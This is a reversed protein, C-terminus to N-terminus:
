KASHKELVKLIRKRKRKKALDLPTKGNRDKANIAAGKILLLKVIGIKAKGVQERMRNIVIQIQAQQENQSDAPESNLKSDLDPSFIAWHLPTRGLADRTNIKAGFALLALIYEQPALEAAYHLCTAGLKNKKHVDAGQLLLTRLGTLKTIDPLNRKLKFIPVSQRALTMNRSAFIAYTLPTDGNIDSADIDAGQSLLLEIKSTINAITIFKSRFIYHLATRGKNDRASVSLGKALLFKMAKLGRDRTLLHLLNAGNKDKYQLDAGKALLLEITQERRSSYAAFFISSQGSKDKVGVDAGKRLLMKVTTIHGGNIAYHLPINKETDRINVSVGKALVFAVAKNYGYQSFWHLPHIKLAGTSTLSIGKRLFFLVMKEGGVIATALANDGKLDKAELNAGKALLIKAIKVNNTSSAYHLPTHGKYTRAEIDAGKALLYRIIAIKESQIAVHLPTEGLENKSNSDAGNQLLRRVKQLDGKAVADHIATNEARLGALMSLVLCLLYLIFTKTFIQM